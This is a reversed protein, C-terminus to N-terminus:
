IWSVKNKTLGNYSPYDSINKNIYWQIACFTDIGENYTNFMRKNRGEKAAESENVVNGNPTNKLRQYRVYDWYIFRELMGVIGKSRAQHGKIIDISFSNFISLYIASQPVGDVLDAIFLDYLDCGLLDKLYETELDDIFDQFGENQHTSSAISILGDEFNEPAINLYSM